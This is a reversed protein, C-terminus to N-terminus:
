TCSMQTSLPCVQSPCSIHWLHSAMAYVVWCGLTGACFHFHQDHITSTRRSLRALQMTHDVCM